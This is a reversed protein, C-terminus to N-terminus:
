WEPSSWATVANKPAVEIACTRRQHSVHPILVPASRGCITADVRGGSPGGKEGLPRCSVAVGNVESTPAESWFLRPWRGVPWRRHKM